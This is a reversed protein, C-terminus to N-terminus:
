VSFGISRLHDVMEGVTITLEGGSQVHEIAEAAVLVLDHLLDTLRGGGRRMEPNEKWHRRLGLHVGRGSSCCDARLRRAVKEYM